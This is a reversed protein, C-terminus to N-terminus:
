SLGRSWTKRVRCVKGEGVLRTATLVAWVMVVREGEGRQVWSATFDARLKSAARISIIKLLESDWSLCSRLDVRPKEGSEVTM